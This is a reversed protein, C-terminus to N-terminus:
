GDLISAISLVQAINEKHPGLLKLTQGWREVSIKKFIKAKERKSM